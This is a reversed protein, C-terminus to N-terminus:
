RGERVLEVPRDLEVDYASWRLELLLWTLSSAVLVVTSATAQVGFWGPLVYVVGNLLPGPLLGKLVLWASTLVDGDTNESDGTSAGTRSELGQSAASEGGSSEDGTSLREAEYPFAVDISWVVEGSPDVELVRDGNSDTVLTNGDPLRDADRPWQLGADSWRWTRQWEGDERQYEVVRNNESDAVLVAPGGDDVPVFDPNHEVLLV